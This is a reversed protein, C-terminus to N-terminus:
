EDEMTSVPPPGTQPDPVVGLYEMWLRTFGLSKTLLAGGSGQYGDVKVTSLAPIWCIGSTTPIVHGTASATANSVVVRFEPYEVGNVMLRIHRVGTAHATFCVGSDLRYLGEPAGPGLVVGGGQTDLDIDLGTDLVIKDYKVPTWTTNPMSVTVVDARWGKVLREDLM